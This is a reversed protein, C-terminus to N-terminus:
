EEAGNATSVGDPKGAEAYIHRDQRFSKPDKQVGAASTTAVYCNFEV